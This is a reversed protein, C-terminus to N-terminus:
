CPTWRRGVFTGRTRTGDADVRILLDTRGRVGEYRPYPTTKLYKALRRRGIPTDTEDLIKALDPDGKKRPRDRLEPDLRWGLEVWHAIQDELTRGTAACASLAAGLLEIPLSVSRRM